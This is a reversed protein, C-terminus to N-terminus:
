HHYWFNMVFRPGCITSQQSLVNEVLLIMMIYYSNVYEQRRWWWWWWWIKRMQICSFKSKPKLICIFSIMQFWYLITGHCIKRVLLMLDFCSKGFRGVHMYWAYMHMYTHRDVDKWEMYYLGYWFSFICVFLNYPLHPFQFIFLRNPRIHTYMHLLLQLYYLCSFYSYHFSAVCM